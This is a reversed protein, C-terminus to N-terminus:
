GPQRNKAASRLAFDLADMFEEIKFPKTLYRFFGAEIGKEIQRPFANSSLAIVPIHGTAPDERLIGLVGTGSIDPLNIDMLIVDPLHTRASQIGLHGNVASILKLDGRRAILQAVLALNAPHDEVYLVTRQSPQAEQAALPHQNPEHISSM